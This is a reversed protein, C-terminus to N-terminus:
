AVPATLYAEDLSDKRNRLNDPINGVRVGTLQTTVGKTSSFVVPRMEPAGPYADAVDLLWEATDDAIAQAQTPAIRHAPDAWSVNLAPWFMRGRYSRGVRATMLSAVISTTSPCNASGSGSAHTALSREAAITLGGSGDFYETRISELYGMSSLASRVANPLVLGTNLALIGDMWDELAAATGGGPIVLRSFCPNVSWVEGGPLSGILRLRWYPDAM